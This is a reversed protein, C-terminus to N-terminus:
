AQPWHATCPNKTVPFSSPLGNAPATNPDDNIDEPTQFQDRIKQFESQLDSQYISTAFQAPNSFLLGEFEHMQVYPIFRRLLEQGLRKELQQVLSVEVCRAKDAVTVKEAAAAKGPFDGPLGYFDFFTTCYATKERM